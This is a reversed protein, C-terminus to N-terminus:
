YLTNIVIIKSIFNFIAIILKNILLYLYLCNLILYLVNLNKLIILKNINFYLNLNIFLLSIISFNVLFCFIFVKMLFLKYLKKLSLIFYFYM